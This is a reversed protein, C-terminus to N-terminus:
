IFCATILFTKCLNQAKIYLIKDKRTQYTFVILSNKIEDMQNPNKKVMLFKDM